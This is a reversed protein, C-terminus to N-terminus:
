KHNARSATLAPSRVVPVSSPKGYLNGRNGKPSPPNKRMPHPRDSIAKRCADKGHSTRIHFSRRPNSYRSAKGIDTPHRIAPATLSRTPMPITAISNMADRRRLARAAGYYPFSLLSRLFLRSVNFAPIAKSHNTERDIFLHSEHSSM